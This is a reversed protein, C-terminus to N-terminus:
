LITSNNKEGENEETSNKILLPYVLDEYYNEYGKYKRHVTYNGQNNKELVFVYKGKRGARINKYPYSFDQKGLFAIKPTNKKDHHVIFEIDFGSEPNTRYVDFYNELIIENTKLEKKIIWIKKGTNKIGKSVVEKAFDNLVNSNIDCLFEISYYENEDITKEESFSKVEETSFNKRQIYKEIYEKTLSANEQSKEIYKKTEKLFFKISELLQETKELHEQLSKNTSQIKKKQKLLLMFSIIITSILFLFVSIILFEPTTLVTNKM